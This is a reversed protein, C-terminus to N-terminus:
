TKKLTSTKNSLHARAFNPAARGPRDFGAPRHDAPFRTYRPRARKAEIRDVPVTAHEGTQPETTLMWIGSGFMLLAISYIEGWIAVTALTLLLSVMTFMWALRLNTLTTDSTFDRRSVLVLGTVFAGFFMLFCPIGFTGALFLLFNDVSGTMWPPLNWENYGIGFLPNPWVVKDMGEIFLLRRSFATSSSFTLKSVISYVAGRESLFELVIYIFIFSSWFIRWRSKLWYTSVRYGILALQVALALFPGSSVSLFTCFGIIGTIILRRVLGIVNALGLLMLSFAMSCFIGYHIPHAFVWQVRWFGMRPDHDIDFQSTVGPLADIWRPITTRATITEPIAFPLSIVVVLALFKILGIFDEQTRIAARGTLYGGLLTIGVSGTYEIAVVPSHNILMSLTMWGTYGFILYDVPLIRGYQGSFLKSLLVPVLVLFALKSPTMKLSGIQFYAPILLLLIVFVALMPVKPTALSALAGTRTQTVATTM